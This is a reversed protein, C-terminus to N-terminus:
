RLGVRVASAPVKVGTTKSATGLVKTISKATAQPDIADKINIFLNNVTSGVKNSVASVPEPLNIRAQQQSQSFSQSLEVLRAFPAIIANIIELLKTMNDIFAKLGNEGNAGALAANFRGFQSALDKVAKGLGYAGTSEDGIGKDLGDNFEVVRGRVDRLANKMSQPTGGTLGAVFDKIAEVGTTSMFKIFPDLADLLFLGLDEKAKTIATSIQALRGAYTDAAAAAAGAYQESLDKLIDNFPRAVEKTETITKGVKKQKGEFM